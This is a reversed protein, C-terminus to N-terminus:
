TITQSEPDSSARSLVHSGCQPCAKQSLLVPSPEFVFKTNSRFQNSCQECVCTNETHKTWDIAKLADNFTNM